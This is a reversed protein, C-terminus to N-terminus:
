TSCFSIAFFAFLIVAFSVRQYILIPLAIHGGSNIEAGAANIEAAGAAGKCTGNEPLVIVIYQCM